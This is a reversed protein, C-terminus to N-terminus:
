CLLLLHSPSQEHGKYAVETHFRFEGKSGENSEDAGGRVPAVTHIRRGDKLGEYGIPMGLLRAVSMLVAESVFTQKDRPPAGDPPTPPLDADIPVNRILLAAPAAPDDIRQQIAGLVPLPLTSVTARWAALHDREIDATAVEALARHWTRQVEPTLEIT